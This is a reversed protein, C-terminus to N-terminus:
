RKIPQIEAVRQMNNFFEDLPKEKKAISEKLDEIEQKTKIIEQRILEKDTRM